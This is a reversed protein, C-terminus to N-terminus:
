KGASVAVLLTSHANAQFLIERLKKSSFEVGDIRASANELNVSAVERACIWPKGHRAFWATADDALERARGEILYNKPYGLLRQYETEQVEVRPNTDILSFM